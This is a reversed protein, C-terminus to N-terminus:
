IYNRKQSIVFSAAGVALAGWYSILRYLLAIALAASSDIHYAVFGAVIAAEYGGLGGPTPTATGAGVSFSFILFVSFYSLHVGLAWMCCYLSLVNCATLSMSSLLALVLHGPRHRYSLLQDGVDAMVKNFRKRGVTLAIVALLLLLLIGYKVITAFAFSHQSKLGSTGSYVLLVILSLIIHGMLGLFNNVGVLTGAQTASHGSKKLYIFNAGLAGIGGPLLRNIFMAALQFLVTRWYYLRKFALLCYTGAAALYTLATFVIALIVWGTEPHSLQHWSQKFGGLQPLIVYIAIVLLVLLLFYRRSFHFKDHAM